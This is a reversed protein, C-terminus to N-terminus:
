FKDAIKTNCLVIMATPTFAAASVASFGTPKTAAEIGSKDCSNYQADYSNERPAALGAPSLSSPQDRRRADNL